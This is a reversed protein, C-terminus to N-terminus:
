HVSVGHAPVEASVDVPHGAASLDNGVLRIERSGAGEIRLFTAADRPCRCGQVLARRVEKFQAIPGGPTPLADWGLLELDQVDDCVLSPRGEPEACRVQVHRFRLGDVHRCYFGYAPLPGFMGHEPYRDPHEPVPEHAARLKGGGRCAIRLDELAINEVHAEPLGTISCGIADAGEAQIHSLRVNRLRGQGPRPQNERFPRARNGLRVFIVGNVRRMVVNSISVQDLTGGDVLELAIGAIGTDYMVCNSLVIDEFGGNSETGLKFANCASSLLCNTIAVRRCPRDLTSKLVIADDGSDIDCHAIRVRECGDIDIGDNNANCRSRVRLGELHVDDCALYHQVWMPSDRLELDRVAVERCAILRILYPRVKYEGKFAGGQGDIRGRGQLAVQELNEGYILSRETYNDTYSRVAPVCRPYDELRPSGVLTAGAELHLTVRSKLFLTGTLYAGAPFQVTGGGRQACADIAAQLPATDLTLRDGRAGHDLVSVAAGARPPEAAARPASTAAATGALGILRGLFGRRPISVSPTTM